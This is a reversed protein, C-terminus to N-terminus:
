RVFFGLLMVLVACRVVSVLLDYFSARRQQWAGFRGIALASMWVLALAALTAAVTLLLDAPAIGSGSEFATM